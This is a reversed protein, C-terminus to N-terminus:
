ARGILDRAATMLTDLERPSRAEGYCRILPETGSPRFLIWSSDRFVMKRGDTTNCRVISRGAFTLPIDELRRALRERAGADVPHDIRRSFRPGVKKFLDRIQQRIPKRRVAIMEVALLGALIGDKEPVHRRLSLGASEEGILFARGSTLHEALFKFGVPTEYLTRGHLSCLADLLHTTAVSRGIGGPLRREELLYDALVALFLNPQIFIGGADIIGFRDGDGDTAIGLDLRQRRVVQALPKLQAEGCDPGIGEFEPHPTDHITTVSRVVRRLCGDLFGISAGHRPDCAVRIRRKRIQAPRVLRLIQRFYSARIDLSRIAAPRRKKGSGGGM